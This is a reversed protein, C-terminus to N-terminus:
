TNMFFAICINYKSLMYLYRTLSFILFMLSHTLSNYKTVVWLRIVVGSATQWHVRQLLYFFKPFDFRIWLSAQILVRWWGVSRQSLVHTHEM